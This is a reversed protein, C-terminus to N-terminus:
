MWCYSYRISWHAFFSKTKKCGLVMRRSKM